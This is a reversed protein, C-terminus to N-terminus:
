FILSFAPKRQSLYVLCSIRTSLQFAKRDLMVYTFVVRIITFNM